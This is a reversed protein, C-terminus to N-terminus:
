TKSVSIATRVFAPIVRPQAGSRNQGSWGTVRPCIAAKRARARWRGGALVVKVSVLPWVKAVSMAARARDPIVRPQAGSRNQGSWGTVRPCIAAKRARARWRAADVLVTGSVLLAVTEVGIV